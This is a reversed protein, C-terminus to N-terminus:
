RFTYKLRLFKPDHRNGLPCQRALLKGSEHPSCAPRLLNARCMCLTVISVVISRRPKEVLSYLLTFSDGPSQTRHPHPAVLCEQACRVSLGSLSRSPAQRQQSGGGSGKYTVGESLVADSGPFRGLARVSVAPPPYTIRASM